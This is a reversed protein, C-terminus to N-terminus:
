PAREPGDRALVMGIAALEDEAQCDRFNGQRRVSAIHRRYDILTEVLSSSPTIPYWDGRDGRRVNVWRQPPTATSSKM